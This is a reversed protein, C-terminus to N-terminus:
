AKAYAQDFSDAELMIISEEFFVEGTEVSHKVVIKVSYKM